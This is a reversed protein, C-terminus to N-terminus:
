SRPEPGQWAGVRWISSHSDLWLFHMALGLSRSGGAVENQLEKRPMGAVDVSVESLFGVSVALIGTAVNVMVPGPQRQVTRLSRAKPDDSTGRRGASVGKGVLM